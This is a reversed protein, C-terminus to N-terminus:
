SKKNEGRQGTTGDQGLHREVEALGQAPALGQERAVGLAVRAMARYAPVLTPARQGLAELHAGVCAGDGRSVPGTLAGPLGLRDLNVLTSQMLPVLAATAARRDWGLQSLAEAAQAALAVLHNSAMVAAGHYLVRDGPAVALLQGGLHAVISQGVALAEEDGEGAFAARPLLDAAAVPDAFSLLPHFSAVKVGRRRLPELEESSRAGSCHFACTPQRQRQALESAVTRILPDPVAIVVTAAQDVAEPLPGSTVEFGVM